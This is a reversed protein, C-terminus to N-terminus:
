RKSKKYKKYNLINKKERKIKKSFFYYFFSLLLFFFFCYYPAHTIHSTCSTFMFCLGLFSFCLCLPHMFYIHPHMFYVHFLHPLPALNTFILLYECCLILFPTHSLPFPPAYLLVHFLHSLLALNTFMLPVRLMFNFCPTLYRFFPTRLSLFFQLQAYIFSLPARLLCVWYV